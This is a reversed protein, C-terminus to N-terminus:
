RKKKTGALRDLPKDLVIRSKERAIAIANHFKEKLLKKPPLGTFSQAVKIKSENLMLLELHEDSKDACLILGVPPDEGSKM